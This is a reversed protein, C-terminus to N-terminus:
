HHILAFLEFSDGSLQKLLAYRRTGDFAVWAQQISYVCTTYVPAATALELFVCFHGTQQWRGHHELKQVKINMFNCNDSATPCNKDRGLLALAQWTASQQTISCTGDYASNLNQSSCDCTHASLEVLTRYVLLYRVLAYAELM